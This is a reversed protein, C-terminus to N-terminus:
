VQLLLIYELLLNHQSYMQFPLGYKFDMQLLINYKCYLHFLLVYELDM